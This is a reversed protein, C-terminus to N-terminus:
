YTDSEGETDGEGETYRESASGGADRKEVGVGSAGM